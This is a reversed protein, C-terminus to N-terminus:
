ECPDVPVTEKYRYCLRKTSLLMLDLLPIVLQGVNSLVCAYLFLTMNDHSSTVSFTHSRDLDTYVTCVCVHVRMCVCLCVCVCVCVCM